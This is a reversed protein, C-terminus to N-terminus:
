NRFHPRGSGVREDNQWGKGRDIQRPKEDARSGAYAKVGIRQLM